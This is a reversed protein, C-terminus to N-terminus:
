GTAPLKREVTMSKRVSSEHIVTRDESLQESFGIELESHAQKEDDSVRLM